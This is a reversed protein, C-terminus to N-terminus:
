LEGRFARHQLSAFLVEQLDLNVSAKQWVQFLEKRRAAFQTQLGFEPCKILLPALDKKNLQPVSSGSAIDSLTFLSFWGSLFDTNMKKSKPSVGMLNPDLIAPRRLIRKKNTGIAGGRKPFVIAGAPCTSARTGAIPSWLAAETIEQSNNPRNLDSVKLILYGDAQGTFEEGEPLTNGSFFDACEGLTTNAVRESRVDGFMEHFIAQGLTNLKDLAQARLRRLADAQDLIGAIRKQEHLPPLPIPINGAQSKTLKSRTSGNIFPRVDYNELVRCLYSLDICSKPKLVHAHNNVWTKGNIRYAIGRDPTDFFGGDEALLILPEDFLYGDITGQLGNAGYYPYPGPKRDAQKVPKRRSDLFEAVESLPLVEFHAEAIERTIM